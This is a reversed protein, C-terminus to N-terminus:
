RSRGRWARPSGSLWWDTMGLISGPRAGLAVRVGIDYTGQAVLCSMVGSVGVAALLLAFFAFL